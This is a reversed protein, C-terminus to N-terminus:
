WGSLIIEVFALSKFVPLWKEWVEFLLVVSGIEGLLLLSLFNALFPLGWFERGHTFPITTWDNFRTQSKAVGHVAARLSPFLLCIIRCVSLQLKLHGSWMSGWALFWEIFLLLWFSHELLHKLSELKLIILQKFDSGGLSSIWVWHLSVEFKLSVLLCFASHALWM